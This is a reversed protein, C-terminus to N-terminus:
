ISVTVPDGTRAKGTLTVRERDESLEMTLFGGRESAQEGKARPRQLREASYVALVCHAAGTVPDEAIGVNPAFVRTVWDLGGRDGIGTVIVKGWPLAAIADIDPTIKRVAEGSTLEVLLSSRGAFVNVILKSGIAQALGDPREVREPPDAPLDISRQDDPLVRAVLEGSKTLFRADHGLLHVTALTAHGCLDVEVTPTFWRLEYTAPTGPVEEGSADKSPPAADAVWRVFATESAGVAAAVAQMWADAPWPQSPDLLLVGAPNGHLIRGDPFSEVFADVVAVDFAGPSAM